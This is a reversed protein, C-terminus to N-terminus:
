NEHGAQKRNLILQVLKFYLNVTFINVVCHDWVIYLWHQYWRSICLAIVRLSLRVTSYYLSIIIVAQISSDTNSNLNPENCESVYFCEQSLLARRKRAIVLSSLNTLYGWWGAIPCIYRTRSCGHFWQWDPLTGGVSNRNSKIFLLNGRVYRTFLLPSIKLPIPIDFFSYRSYFALIKTFSTKSFKVKEVCVSFSFPPPFLSYAVYTFPYVSYPVRCFLPTAFHCFINLTILLLFNYLAM